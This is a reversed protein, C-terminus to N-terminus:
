LSYVTRIATGVKPLGTEECDKVMDAFMLAQQAIYEPKFSSMVANLVPASSHSLHVCLQIASELLGSTYRVVSEKIRALVDDLVAQLASLLTCM